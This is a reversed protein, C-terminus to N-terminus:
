HGAPIAASVKGACVIEMLWGNLDSLMCTTLDDKGPYQRLAVTCGASHMLRLDRCVQQEPYTQSQRAMAVLCPLRRLDNVNRMPCLQVPLAGGLTAVGAFRQPYNWAVRVAMTGGSGAGALFVREPHVNFRESAAAICDFIAAEAQEIRDADQEWHFRGPRKSATGRPAVAVFNRMSVHPMVRRLHQENGARGHLWVILPYAYGPEYHLPAFTAFPAEPAAAARSRRRTLMSLHPVDTLNTQPFATMPKPAFTALRNM